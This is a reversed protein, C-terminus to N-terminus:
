PVPCVGNNSEINKSNKGGNTAGITGLINVM